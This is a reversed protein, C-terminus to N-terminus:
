IIIVTIGNQTLVDNFNLGDHTNEYFTNTSMKRTRIDLLKNQKM